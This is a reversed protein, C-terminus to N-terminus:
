WSNIDVLSRAGGLSATAGALVGTGPGTASSRMMPKWTRSKEDFVSLPRASSIFRIAAVPASVTM